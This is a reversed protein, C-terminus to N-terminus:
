VTMFSLKKDKDTCVKFSGKQTELETTMEIHDDSM